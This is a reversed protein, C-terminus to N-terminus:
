PNPNQLARAESFSTLAPSRIRDGIATARLRGLATVGSSSHHRLIQRQDRLNSHTLDQSRFTKYTLRFINVIYKNHALATKFIHMTSNVCTNGQGSLKKM